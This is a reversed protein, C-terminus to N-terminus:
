VEDQSAQMEQQVNSAFSFYPFVNWEVWLWYHFSEMDLFHLKVTNEPLSIAKEGVKSNSCSTQM